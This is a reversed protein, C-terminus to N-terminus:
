DIYLQFKDKEAQGKKLATDPDPIFGEADV